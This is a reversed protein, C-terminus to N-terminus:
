EIPVSPPPEPPSEKPAYYWWRGIAEHHRAACRTHYAIMAELYRELDPGVRYQVSHIVWIKRPEGPHESQYVRIDTLTRSHFTAEHSHRDVEQRDIAWDNASREFFRAVGMGLALVAIFAMLTVITPRRLRRRQATVTFTYPILPFRLQM